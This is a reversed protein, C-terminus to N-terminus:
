ISEVIQKFINGREKYDRFMDFSSCMPSFLVTDGKEAMEYAKIVADKLDKEKYVKTYVGLEKEIKEKAEGILFLAKVKKMESAIERYSGGKDKGGAILIVNGMISELARKTADVNTAKSDNIFTIGDIDRVFEVRHPLGKFTKLTDEVVAKDVGIIHSVILCSLINETNHAGMLPSIERSYVYEKGDLRVYMFGDKYFAGERLYEKISFYLRKARIPRNMVINKNIVAVDKEIQNEFIKFKANRYEDFSRYRDLHDETINLLVSIYPHFKYITELQFSSIELIVFKAKKGGMIYNILPNGINGGVFVDKFQAKFIEGLLTTVTTKGNSGTIAIIPETVFSSALEIEGIVKIGKKKAELILPMESDVGPSLVIMENKLFDERNHNGFTAKFDIGKLESLAHSLADQPKIDTITIKKKQAALFKAVAIGTKGLGVILIRDPIDM